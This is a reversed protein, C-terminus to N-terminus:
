AHKRWKKGNSLPIMDKIKDYNEADLDCTKRVIYAPRHRVETYTRGLTDGILGIATM